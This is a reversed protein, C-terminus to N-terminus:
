FKKDLIKEIIAISKLLDKEFEDKSVKRLDIHSYTHSGLEHGRDNIKKILKPFKEAIYGLSFFTAKVSYEEILELLVDTTSEIRSEYKPWEHFLLDCFYDELDVSM